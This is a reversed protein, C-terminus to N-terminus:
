VANRCTNSMKMKVFDDFASVIIKHMFIMAFLGWNNHEDARM